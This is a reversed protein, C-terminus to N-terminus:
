LLSEHLELERRRKGRRCGPSHEESRSTWCCLRAGRRSVRQRALAEDGLEVAYALAQDVARRRIM